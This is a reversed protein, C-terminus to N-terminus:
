AVPAAEPASASITTTPGPLVEGDKRNMISRPLFPIFVLVLATTGANLWV